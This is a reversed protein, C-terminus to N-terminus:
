KKCNRIAKLLIYEKLDNRKPKYKPCLAETDAYLAQGGKGSYKTCKFKYKEKYELDEITKQVLEKTNTIINITLDTDISLFRANNYRQLKENFFENMTGEYEYKERLHRKRKLNLLPRAQKYIEMILKEIM